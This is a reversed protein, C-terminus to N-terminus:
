RQLKQIHEFYANFSVQEVELLRKFADRFDCRGTTFVGHGYIIATKFRILPAPLTAAISHPGTGSEGPIIPVSGAFRKQKCKTHCDNRDTCTERQDCLLSAIVSFRPHGHLIARHGSNRYVSKHAPYESSATIATCRSDDLACPDICGELEDLSSTTQSIYVTNGLRYSINGFFSDVMKKGVTLRGVECIAQVAEKGSEFPGQMLVPHSGAAELCTQYYTKGQMVLEALLADRRGARLDDFFDVFAKVFLSFCVSSFVIYAQEPSVTGYSIVGQGPIIACKRKKLVRILNAASPDDVVPLEHLFTRNENDQPCLIHQGVPIRDALRNILSFYPEAPRAFLIAAVDLGAVVKELLVQRRDPRNWMIDADLGGILPGPPDVLGQAVLKDAYKNLLNEM